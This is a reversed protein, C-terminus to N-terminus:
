KFSLLEIEFILDAKQPIIPPYGQVGYALQFPITAKVKQGISMQGVTIDWGEIVEGKGLGFVFPENRDRSSDFKKGNLLTGVYHVTVKNGKKPFSKNDGQTITEIKVSM